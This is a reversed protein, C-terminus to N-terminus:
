QIFSWTNTEDNWEYQHGDNPHPYLPIITSKWTCTDIDLAYKPGPSPLYFADLDKDYIYGIGAFNKRLPTGNDPNGTNPDYHIGGRTNYSTQIWDSSGPLANIFDQEAVIVRTVIGDKVQAFHSM